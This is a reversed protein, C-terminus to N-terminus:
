TLSLSSALSSSQYITKIQAATLATNYVRTDSISYTNNSIGYFAFQNFATTGSMDTTYAQPNAGPSFSGSALQGNIYFYMNKDSNGGMVVCMHYWTNLSAVFNSADTERYGFGSDNYYYSIKWGNFFGMVLSLQNTNGVTNNVSSLLEFFQIKTQGQTSAGGGAIIRAWTSVTLGNTTIINSPLSSSYSNTNIIQLCNGYLGQTFNQSGSLTAGQVSDTLSGNFSWLLSPSPTILTLNFSPSISSSRYIGQVQATSLATNYIRLDEYYGDLPRGNVSNFAMVSLPVISTRTVTYTSYLVGNIYFYGTTNTGTASVNSLVLGVHYFVNTSLVPGVAGYNALFRQSSGNIIFDYQTGDMTLRIYTPNIASVFSRPNIWSTLSFSNSTGPFNTINYTMACNAANAGGFTTSNNLYIANGYLGPVYVPAYTFAGNVSSSAPGLNTISDVNSGNYSWMLSPSPTSQTLTLYPPIGRSQYIGLIQAPTLVQNYIRFDAAQVNSQIFQYNAFGIGLQYIPNTYATTTLPNGVQLNSSLLTGSNITGGAATNLNYSVTVSSAGISTVWCSNFVSHIYVNSSYGTQSTSFNSVSAVPLTLGTYIQGSTGAPVTVLSTLTTVATTQYQQRPTGVPQGNFYASLIGGSDLTMAFHCWTGTTLKVNTLPSISVGAGTTAVVPSNFSSPFYYRGSSAKYNQYYITDEFEFFACNTNTLTPLFWGSATFTKLNLSNIIYFNGVYPTTGNIVLSNGYVGSNTAFTTSATGGSYSAQAPIGSITDTSSGNFPLLFVPQPGASM